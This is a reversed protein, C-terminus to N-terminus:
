WGNAARISTSSKKTRGNGGYVSQRLRRLFIASSLDLKDKRKRRFDADVFDSLNYVADIYPSMARFVREGMNFVGFAGQGHAKM